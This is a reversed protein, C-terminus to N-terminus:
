ADPEYMLETREARRLDLFQKFFLPRRGANDERVLLENRFHYRAQNSHGASVEPEQSPEESLDLSNEAYIVKMDDGSCDDFGGAVAEDDTRALAPYSLYNQFV